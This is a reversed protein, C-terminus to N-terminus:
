RIRHLNCNGTLEVGGSLAPAVVPRAQRVILKVRGLAAAALDQNPPPPNWIWRPAPRNATARGAVPLTPITKEAFIRAILRQEYDLAPATILPSPPAALRASARQSDPTAGAAPPNLVLVRRRRDGAWPNGSGAGAASGLANLFSEIQRKGLQIILRQDSQGDRWEFHVFHHAGRPLSFALAQYTLLIPIAFVAARPDTALMNNWDDAGAPDLHHFPTRKYTAALLQAFPVIVARSNGDFVVLQEPEIHVALEIGKKAHLPGANYKATWPGGRRDKEAALMAGNVVLTVAITALITVARM